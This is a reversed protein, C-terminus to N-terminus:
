EVFYKLEAEARALAVQQQLTQLQAELLSRRAELVRAFPQTASQYGSLVSEVQQGALPLIEKEFRNIREGAIRWNAYAMNLDAELAARRDAIKQRNNEVLAVKSAYRRDQRKATFIPLDVSVMMSVFDARDQSRAGYSVDFNWDPKYAERAQDVETQAIELGSELAKLEPHDPIGSQIKQLEPVKWQPLSEDPARMAESGIWRGLAAQARALGLRLGDERDKVYELMTRLQLVEAQTLKGTTYTIQAWELQREYEQKIKGVLDLARAPYYADLWALRSERAIRRQISSLTQEGQKAEGLVRMNSLALKNGGPLTQSVGVIAQTMPEQSFSFTDTPLNSLGFRLKPDPLQGAAVASERMAEIASSQALLQPQERLAIDVAEEMGLSVRPKQSYGQSEVSYAPMASTVLAAVLFIQIRM